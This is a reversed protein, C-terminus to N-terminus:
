WRRRAPIRRGYPPPNTRRSYALVHLRNSTRPRRVSAGARQWSPTSNRSRRSSTPLEPDQRLGSRSDRRAGRPVSGMTLPRVTMQAQALRGSTFGAAAARPSLRLGRGADMESATAARKLSAALGGRRLAPQGRDRGIPGRAAVFRRSKAAARAAWALSLWLLLCRACAGTIRGRSDLPGGLCRRTRAWYCPGLPCFVRDPKRLVSPPSIGGLSESLGDRM